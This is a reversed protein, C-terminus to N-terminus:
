ENIDEELSSKSVMARQPYGAAAARPWCLFPPSATGLSRLSVSLAPWCVSCVYASVATERRVGTASTDVLTIQVTRVGPGEFERGCNGCVFRGTEAM